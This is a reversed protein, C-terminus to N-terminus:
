ALSQKRPGADVENAAEARAPVDTGKRVVEPRGDRRHVHGEVLQCMQEVRGVPGGLPEHERQAGREVQDLHNPQLREVVRRERAADMQAGLEGREGDALSCRYPPARARLARTIPYVAGVCAGNRRSVAECDRHKHMKLKGTGQAAPEAAKTVHRARGPSTCPTGRSDQGAARWSM